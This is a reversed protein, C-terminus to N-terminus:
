NAFISARHLPEKDSFSLSVISYCVVMYKDVIFAEFLLIQPM